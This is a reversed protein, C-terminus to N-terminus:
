RLKPCEIIMSGQPTTRAWAGSVSRKMLASRSKEIWSSIRELRGESRFRRATAYSHGSFPPPEAPASIASGVLGEPTGHHALPAVTGVLAARDEVRRDPHEGALTEVAGADGVDGALGPDGVAEDVM